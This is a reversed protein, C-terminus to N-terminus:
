WEELRINEIFERYESDELKSYLKTRYRDEEPLPPRKGPFKGKYKKDMEAKIIEYRRVSPPVIDRVGKGKNQQGEKRQQQLLQKDKRRVEDWLKESIERRGTKAGWPLRNYGWTLRKIENLFPWWVSRWVDSNIISEINLMLILNGHTAKKPFGEKSWKVIKCFYPRYKNWFKWFKWLYKNKQTTYKKGRRSLRKLRNGCNNLDKLSKTMDKVLGESIIVGEESKSYHEKLSFLMQGVIMHLPMFESEFYRKVKDWNGWDFEMEKLEKKSFAVTCIDTNGDKSRYIRM